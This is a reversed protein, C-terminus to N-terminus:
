VDVAAGASHARGAAQEPAMYSPTGVLAGSQTQGGEVDLRKAPGFDTIKPQHTTLPSLPSIPGIPGMPGMPGIPGREGRVLLINAPKLDRHVVGRQHAYHMARVLVEVLRASERPPQAAGACHQALSPGDVYELALYPRGDAQGVEYIQVLNPHQ